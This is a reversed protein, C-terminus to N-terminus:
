GAGDARRQNYEPCKGIKNGFAPSQMRSCTHERYSM